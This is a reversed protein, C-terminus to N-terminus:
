SFLSLHGMITRRADREQEARQEAGGIEGDADAGAQHADGPDREIAALGQRRPEAAHQPAEGLEEEDVDPLAREIV